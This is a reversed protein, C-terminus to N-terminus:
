SSRRPAPQVAAAGAWRAHHRSPKISPWSSIKVWGPQPARNKSRAVSRGQLFCVAAGAGGRRNRGCAAARSRLWGGMSTVGPRRGRGKVPARFRDSSRRNAPQMAAAFDQAQFNRCVWFFLSCNSAWLGRIPAAACGRPFRYLTSPPNLDFYLFLFGGGWPGNKTGEM